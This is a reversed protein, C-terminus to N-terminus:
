DVLDWENMSGEDAGEWGSLDTLECKENTKEDKEPEEIIVEREEWDPFISLEEDSLCLLTDTMNAWDFEGKSLMENCISQIHAEVQEFFDALVFKSGDSIETGDPGLIPTPTFKSDYIADEIAGDFAFVRRDMTATPIKKISHEACIWNEKGVFPNDM